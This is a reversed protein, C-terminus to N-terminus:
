RGAGGDKAGADQVEIRRVAGAAAERVQVHPDDRALRRLKDLATAAKDGFTGLAEASAIRANVLETDLAALLHPVAAPDGIDALTRAAATRLYGDRDFLFPVVHRLAAPDRLKGLARLVPDVATRDKGQLYATLAPVARRDGLRELGRAAAAVVPPFPDTLARTLAPLSGAGGHRALGEVARRRVLMDGDRLRQEFWWVDDPGGLSVLGRLAAERVHGEEDDSIRRLGALAARRAEKGGAAIASLAFVARRRSPLPRRGAMVELAAAGRADGTAALADAAGAVLDADTGEV